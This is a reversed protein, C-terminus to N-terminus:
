QGLESFHETCQYNQQYKEASEEIVMEVPLASVKWRPGKRQRQQPVNDVQIRDVWMLGDEVPTAAISGNECNPDTGCRIDHDSVVIDHLLVEGALM